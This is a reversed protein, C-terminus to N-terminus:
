DAEFAAAVLGALGAFAVGPEAVRREEEGVREGHGAVYHRGPLELDLRGAGGEHLPLVDVDGVVPVDPDQSVESQDPDDPHV